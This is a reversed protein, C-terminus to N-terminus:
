RYILSERYIIIIIYVCEYRWAKHFNFNAM